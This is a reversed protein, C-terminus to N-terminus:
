IESADVAQTLCARIMALDATGGYFTAGHYGANLIYKNEPSTSPSTILQEKDEVM